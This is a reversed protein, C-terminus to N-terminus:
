SKDKSKAQHSFEALTERIEKVFDSEYEKTTKEVLASLNNNITDLYEEKSKYQKTKPPTRLYLKVEYHWFPQSAIKAERDYSLTKKFAYKTSELDLRNNNNKQQGIQQALSRIDSESILLAYQDSLKPFMEEGCFFEVSLYKKLTSHWGVIINAIWLFLIFTVQVLSIITGTKNNEIETILNNWLSTPNIGALYLLIIVIFLIVMAYTRNKSSFKLIAWAKIWPRRLGEINIVSDEKKM